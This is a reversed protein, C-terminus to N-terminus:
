PINIKMKIDGLNPVSILKQSDDILKHNSTDSAAHDHDACRSGSDQEADRTVDTTTRVVESDSIHLFSEVVENMM